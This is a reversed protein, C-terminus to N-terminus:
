ENWYYLRLIKYDYQETINGTVYASDVIVTKRPLEPKKNMCLAFEYDGIREKTMNVLLTSENSYRCWNQVDILENRFEDDLVLNELVSSPQENSNTLPNNLLIVLFAFTMVFAIMVELTRLYGKSGYRSM